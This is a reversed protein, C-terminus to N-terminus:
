TVSETNETPRDLRGAMTERYQSHWGPLGHLYLDHATDSAHGITEMRWARPLNPTADLVSALFHRLEHFTLDPLGARECMPVWVRRRWNQALLYSGRPSPFVLGLPNPRTSNTQSRFAKAACDILPVHREGAETKAAALLKGEYVHEVIDVYEDGPELYVNKWRLAFLEGERIGTFAGALVLNADDQTPAEDVLGYVQALTPIRKKKRAKQKPPKTAKVPNFPIVRMLTAHEFLGGLPTRVGLITWSAKRARKLDDFIGEVDLATVDSLRKEGIVPFVHASLASRYKKLVHEQVGEAEKHPFWTDEAYQQVTARSGHIVGLQAESRLQDRFARADESRAFRTGPIRAGNHRVSYIAEGNLKVKKDVCEYKTKRWAARKTTAM